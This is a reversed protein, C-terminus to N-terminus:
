LTHYYLRGRLVTVNVNGADVNMVNVNGADIVGGKSLGREEIKMTGNASREAALM